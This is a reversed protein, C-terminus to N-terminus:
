AVVKRNKGTKMLGDYHRNLLYANIQQITDIAVGVMILLSTGGYFLAWGQQMGMIQVIIAPLVSVAALFLSGPFTILSMIKDLFESTEGGPRIGPVFGGSRKLDDSMKNTPVTIATYFYTFVIILFGFLINYWLGFMDSFSTQLWQGFSSDGFLQGVYAPAFMIAQAFIIPMVGSANLRLPIYQRSSAQNKDFGGSATRRAYQVPVQRVAKVLLVCLAIVVIWIVLEILITIAGGNSQTVRSTFEQFFAQPLSAIIGVTILLSIGNGIGKDTIKEGLWMAFVCGTVLIVVSSFVFVPTKGLIFATEPVGLAGLSYLYAPAQVVCILITLWRTIQNITKRGSEGEKQLKQLYPVAIGMLQVVISASIYPMIGLAFVSANAFAGGTFANLIGLLGGGQTRSSLEALQVSDIGPLVVQAGLRYIALFFLTIFIRNKLEEIKWINKLTEFFSYM